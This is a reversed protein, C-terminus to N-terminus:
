CLTRDTGPDETDGQRGGSQERAGPGGQADCLAPHPLATFGYKLSALQHDGPSRHPTFDRDPVWSGFPRPAARPACTPAPPPVLTKARRAGGRERERTRSRPPDPGGRAGHLAPCTGLGPRQPVTPKSLRGSPPGGLSRAEHEGVGVGQGSAEPAQPLAPAAWPKERCGPFAWSVQTRRLLPQPKPSAGSTQSLAPSGLPASIEAAAVQAMLQCAHPPRRPGHETPKPTAPGRCRLGGNAPQLAAM